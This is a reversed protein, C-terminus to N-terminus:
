ELVCDYEIWFTVRPKKLGDPFVKIFPKLGVSTLIGRQQDFDTIEFHRFISGLVLQLQAKGAYGGQCLVQVEATCADVNDQTATTHRKRKTVVVNDQTVPPSQRKKAPM